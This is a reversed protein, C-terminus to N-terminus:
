FSHLSVHDIAVEHCSLEESRSFRRWRVERVAYDEATTEGELLSTVKVLGSTVQIDLHQLQLIAALDFRDVM